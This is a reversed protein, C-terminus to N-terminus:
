LVPVSGDIFLLHSKYLLLHPESYLVFPFFFLTTSAHYQVGWLLYSFLMSSSWFHLICFTYLLYITFSLILSFFFLIHSTFHLPSLCYYQPSMISLLITNGLFNPFHNGINQTDLWWSPTSVDSRIERSIPQSYAPTRQLWNIFDEQLSLNWDFSLDL